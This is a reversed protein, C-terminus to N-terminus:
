ARLRNRRDKRAAAMVHSWGVPRRSLKQYIPQLAEHFPSARTPDGHHNNWTAWWGGPKLVRAVKRLALRQPLWHFSTAATGLDFGATPLAATEFAQVIFKM